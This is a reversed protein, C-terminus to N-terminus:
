HHTLLPLMLIATTQFEQGDLTLRILYSSINSNTNGYDGVNVSFGDTTPRQLGYMPRQQQSYPYDQSSSTFIGGSPLNDDPFSPFQSFHDEGVLTTGGFSHSMPNTMPLTKPRFDEMYPSHRRPDQEHMIHYSRHQFEGVQAKHFHPFPLPLQLCHNPIYVAPITPPTFEMPPLPQSSFSPIIASTGPYSQVGSTPDGVDTLPCSPFGVVPQVTEVQKQCNENSPLTSAHPTERVRTILEGSREVSQMAYELSVSVNEGKGDKLAGFSTGPMDQEHDSRKTKAIKMRILTMTCIGVLNEVTAGEEFFTLASHFSVKTGDLKTVALKVAVGILLLDAEAEKRPLSHALGAKSRKEEEPVGGGIVLRDAEAGVVRGRIVGSESASDHVDDLIDKDKKQSQSKGSESASDHVDDLIDNQQLAELSAANDIFEQNEYKNECTEVTTVTAISTITTERAIKQSKLLFKVANLPMSESCAVISESFMGMGMESSALSRSVTDTQSDSGIDGHLGIADAANSSPSKLPSADELCPKDDDELSDDSAYDQLLRFPTAIQPASMLELQILFQATLKPYQGRM